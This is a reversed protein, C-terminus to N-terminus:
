QTRTGFREILGRVLGEDGAPTVIVDDFELEQAVRAIRPHPVFLPLKLLMKKGKEGAIEHLNRLGESSTVTIADPAHRKWLALWAAEDLAPKARRYCEVYEVQAGREILTQGLLERGSQGRFIVVRKGRVNTLAPLELLAESDFRAAPCVADTVGFRQLERLSGAGVVALKLGPPLARRAAIMSMAKSVANASVFIALEFEDLRAMLAQLPRLDAPARIELAPFLVTSGGAARILDALHQAQEAPRTVVISRGALTM